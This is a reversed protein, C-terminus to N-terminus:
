RRGVIERTARYPVGDLREPVSQLVVRAKLVDASSSGCSTREPVVLTWRSNSIYFLLVVTAEVLTVLSSVIPGGVAIRWPVSASVRVTWHGGRSQGESNQSVVRASNLFYRHGVRRLPRSAIATWTRLRATRVDPWAACTWYSQCRRTRPQKFQALDFLRSM